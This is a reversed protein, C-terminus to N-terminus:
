ATAAKAWAERHDQAYREFDIPARGLLRQVSDTTRESYGAALFGLIVLLFEAYDANLGAGLLAQRLAQPEIDEFRITRGSARSLIAAVEDHDLARPGTLDFDQKDLDHSTLLRAVVAAIDRTDIFSTKARGVPLQIKGTALIGPLWAHDFNQMFWNPRVINYPLGSRELELEAVRLPADPDANAGMATMLVVKDLGQEVARRILPLLLEHQPVYGPPALLFARQVGAFAADVGAGTALDAQAWEVRDTGARPAKRSSLARVREGRQALEQVVASGVTGTAGVVLTLSM